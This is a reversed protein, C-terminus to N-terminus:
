SFEWCSFAVLYTRDMLPTKCLWLFRRALGTRGLTASLGLTSVAYLDWNKAKYPPMRMDATCVDYSRAARTSGCNMM